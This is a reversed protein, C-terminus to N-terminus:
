HDSMDQLGGQFVHFVPILGLKIEHAKQTAESMQSVSYFAIQKYDPDDKDPDQTMFVATNNEDSRVGICAYHALANRVGVYKEVSSSIEKARSALRPQKRADHLKKLRELKTKNDMRGLAIAAELPRMGFAKGFWQTLGVDLQAWAIVVDAIALKVADPIERQLDTDFNFDSPSTM